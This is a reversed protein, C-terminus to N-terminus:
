HESPKRAIAVVLDGRSSVSLTRMNTELTIVPAEAAEPELRACGEAMSSLHATQAPLLEGRSGITFGRRDLCIAGCIGQEREVAGDLAQAVSHQQTSM